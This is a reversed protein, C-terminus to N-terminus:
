LMSEVGRRNIRKTKRRRAPPIRVASAEHWERDGDRCWLTVDGVRKPSVEDVVGLTPGYYWLKGSTPPM